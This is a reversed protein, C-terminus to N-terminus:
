AHVDRVSRKQAIQKKDEIYSDYVNVSMQSKLQAIEQAEDRKFHWYVQLLRVIDMWYPDLTPDYSAVLNGKRIAREAKIVKHISEWPDIVPMPPMVVTTSQWGEKLYQQASDRHREYLHLSGVAHNYTGLEVGLTRAMIEQLMTFAFVDHPLGLFADNSRMNTFMHLHGHRIMFQLTCTCPIETHRVAIDSADFLQIVARRSDPNKKLLKTVNKVQNHGDMKFLRPGYGGYVTQGDESEDEYRPVYYSIFRLDKTKALYWLLEGLCSFLTGKRESRSLRARPNTIQLLIGIEEWAEGRSPNIRNKSRLLKYFVRRLLDDITEETIFM